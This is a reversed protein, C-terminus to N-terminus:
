INEIYCRKSEKQEYLEKCAETGLDRDSEPNEFLKIQKSIQDMGWM